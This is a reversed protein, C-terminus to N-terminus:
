AWGWESYFEGNQVSKRYYHLAEKAGDMLPLKEIEPSLVWKYNQHEDSLHVDPIKKLSVKFQHYVYRTSPKCIYLPNLRQILSSADLSIGTEEFLERKAAHDPTEGEEIKGAPVGWKGPELKGSARQLLLLKHDIELYCASVHFQPKFGDPEKEYVKIDSSKQM